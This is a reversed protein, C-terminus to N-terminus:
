GFPNEGPTPRASVSGDDYTPMDTGYPTRPDLPAGPRPAPGFSHSASNDDQDSDRRLVAPMEGPTAQATPGSATDIKEFDDSVLGDNWEHGAASTRLNDAGAKTRAHLGDLAPKWSTSVTSLAPGFSWGALSTGATSAEKVATDAPGKMDQAIADAAGAAARLDAPEIHIEDSM